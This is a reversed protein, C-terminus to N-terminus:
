YFLKATILNIQELKFKVQISEDTILLKEYFFVIDESQFFTAFITLVICTALVVSLTKRRRKISRFPVRQSSRLITLLKNFM